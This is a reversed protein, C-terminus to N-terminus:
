EGTFAYEAMLDDMDDDVGWGWHGDRRVCELRKAISLLRIIRTIEFADCTKDCNTDRAIL